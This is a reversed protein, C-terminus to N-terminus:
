LRKGNKGGGRLDRHCGPWPCFLYTKKVPRGCNPCKDNRNESEKMTKFALWFLYAFCGLIAVLMVISAILGPINM